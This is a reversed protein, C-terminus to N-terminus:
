PTHKLFIKSFYRALYELSVKFKSQPGHQGTAQSGGAEAVQTSSNYAHLAM